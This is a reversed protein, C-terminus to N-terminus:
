KTSTIISVLSTLVLTLITFLFVITFIYVIKFIFDVTSITYYSLFPLFPLKTVVRENLDFIFM